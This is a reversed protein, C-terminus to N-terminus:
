FAQGLSVYVGIRNEGVRRKLPTGVDVRIPGFSTHYRVGIGAGYRLDKFTPLGASYLNGGDLFPVIGFNGFRIRAEIAFEALSRGGVPDNFVDRPGIEQYGFGRISGGGGAYFRRSPALEARGAGTIVGLRLRGAMVVRNAVPVYASSDVQVRTYATRQNRFSLEPTIRGSLRFGNTPDLLDNSGDYALSLPLSAIMYTRRRDVGTDVNSDTEDSAIFDAGYSWTWKKQWVINTQREIGAGLLVSKARYAVRDVNSAIVNGTLVRDRRGFNGRRLTAGLLQEQTGAVGRFTVAGEPPLLNRHQWSVEARLGEGTGYGVEGAITRLPAQELAVVIDVHEGDAARVPTIVSTSVLGTAILARRLDEMDAADYTDGPKFRAMRGIHRASFLKRGKIIIQGIHHKGGDKVTIRMTGVADAHDIEVDPEIVEAFVYGNRGLAVKLQALSAELRNADVADGAKIGFSQLMSLMKPDREDLGLVEVSSFRYIQGPTAILSVTIRGGINAGLETEIEADYYGYSQLLQQLMVADERARRDIQAVNATDSAYQHLLSLSKFRAQLGEAALGEVGNLEVAYRAEHMETVPAVPVPAPATPASTEPAPPIVTGGMEIPMPDPTAIDAIDPWAVDMDPMPDLPSLPDLLEDDAQSAPAQSVPAQDSPIQAVPAETTPVAVQAYEQAIASGPLAM